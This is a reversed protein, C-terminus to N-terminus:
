YAHHVPTSFVESNVDLFTGGTELYQLRSWYLSPIWRFSNCESACYVMKDRHDKDYFSMILSYSSLAFFHARSSEYIILFHSFRLVM